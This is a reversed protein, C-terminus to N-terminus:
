LLVCLFFSGLITRSVAVRKADNERERERRKKTDSFSSLSRARTKKREKKGKKPPSIIRRELLPFRLAFRV